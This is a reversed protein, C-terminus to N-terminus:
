SFTLQARVCKEFWTSHDLSWVGVVGRLNRYTFENPASERTLMKVLALRISDAGSRLSPMTPRELASLYCRRYVAGFELLTCPIVHSNLHVCFSHPKIGSDSSQLLNLGIRECGPM